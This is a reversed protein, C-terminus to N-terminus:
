MVESSSPTFKTHLMRHRSMEWEPTTGLFIKACLELPNMPLRRNIEQLFAVRNVGHIIFVPGKLTCVPGNMEFLEGRMGLEIDPFPEFIATDESEIGARLAQSVKRMWFVEPLAKSQYQPDIQLSSLSRRDLVGYLTAMGNPAVAVTPRFLKVEECVSTDM